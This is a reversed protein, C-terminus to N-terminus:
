GHIDAVSLDFAISSTESVVQAVHLAIAGILNVGPTSAQGDAEGILEVYETVVELVGISLTIRISPGCTEAITVLIVSAYAGETYAYSANVSFLVCEEAAVGIICGSQVSERICASNLEPICSCIYGQSLVYSEVAFVAEVYPSM